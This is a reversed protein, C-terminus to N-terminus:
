GAPAPSIGITRSRLGWGGDSELGSGGVLKPGYTEFRLKGGERTVRTRLKGRFQGLCTDYCASFEAKFGGARDSRIQGLWPFRHEAMCPRIDNCPKEGSILLEYLAIKGSGDIRAKGYIFCSAFSLDGVMSRVTYDIGIGYAIAYCGGAFADRGTREVDPCRARKSGSEDWVAVPGGADPVRAGGSTQAGGTGAVALLAVAVAALCGLGWRTVSRM